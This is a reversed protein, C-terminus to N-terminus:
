YGLTLSDADNWSFNKEFGKTKKLISAVSRVL